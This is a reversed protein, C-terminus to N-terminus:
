NTQRVNCERISENFDQDQYMYRYGLFVKCIACSLRGHCHKFWSLCNMKVADADGNEDELFQKMLGSTHQFYFFASM